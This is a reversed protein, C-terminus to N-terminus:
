ADIRSEFPRRLHRCPTEIWGIRGILRLKHLFGTEEERVMEHHNHQDVKLNFGGVRFYAWKRFASSSGSLRRRYWANLVLRPMPVPWHHWGSAAVYEPDLFIEEVDQLHTNPYYCDADVSVIIDGRSWRIGADRVTLKGSHTYVCGVPYKRCIQDSKDRTREDIVCVVEDPVRKQLLLSDLCSPLLEAENFIPVVVSLKM